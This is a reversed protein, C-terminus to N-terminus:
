EDDTPIWNLWKLFEPFSVTGDGDKDMNELAVQVSHKYNIDKLLLKLEEGDIFGNEDKDYKKFYEVAKRTYYYRNAKEDSENIMEISKTDRLWQFFEEFTVNGDGDKDVAALVNESKKADLGMDERLLSMMENKQLVGNGDQDYKRFLSQIVIKPTSENFYNKGSM